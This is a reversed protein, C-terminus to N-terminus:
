NIQAHPASWLRIAHFGAWYSRIADFLTGEKKFLSNVQSRYAAVAELWADLGTESVPYLQNALALTAPELTEPNNLVYPVDAYYFLPRQLSEAAQRVLSHDVHGGLGLPCVLVDEQRLESLLAVAIRKPFKRDAPHPSATVTETYLYKGQPSRRYICDQFGFHVLDAGAILAAAQDEEKRMAVTEKGGPLGWLAHNERAFQSLPGPPPNGALITWIEAQLGQRAQEFILGGCSLVADDFHSSLYIWRM